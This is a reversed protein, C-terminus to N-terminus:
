LFIKAFRTFSISPNYNLSTCVNNIINVEPHLRVEVDTTMQVISGAGEMFHGYRFLFFGCLFECMGYCKHMVFIETENRFYLQLNKIECKLMIKFFLMGIFYEVYM